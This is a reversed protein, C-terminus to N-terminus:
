GGARGSDSREQGSEKPSLRAKLRGILDHTPVAGGFGAENIGLLTDLAERLLATDLDIQLRLGHDLEEKTLPRDDILKFAEAAEARGRERQAKLARAISEAFDPDMVKHAHQPECWLRAAIGLDDEGREDPVPTGEQPTTM